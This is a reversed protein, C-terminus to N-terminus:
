TAPSWGVRYESEEGEGSEGKEENEATRCRSVKRKELWGASIEMTGRALLASCRRKRKDDAAALVVTLM